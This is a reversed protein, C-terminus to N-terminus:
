RVPNAGLKIETKKKPAPIFKEQHIPITFSFTSGEGERSQVFLQGGNKEIFDKCLMLGLGSGKEYSTGLTSHAQNTFLNSLQGDTMGIGSDRVSVKLFDKERNAQVLLEGGKGTFKIANSVLNRVVLKIMEYDGFVKQGPDITLAMKIDVGKNQAQLETLNITEDILESIDFAEPIPNIGQMQNKAWNLLNDLLNTTINVKLRLDRAISKTESKNIHGDALLMLVGELSNLPSRFDHSVISILKDKIKNSEELEEKQHGIDKNLSQLTSIIKEIEKKQNVLQKNAIKKDRNANTLIVLILFCLILGFSVVIVTYTQKEILMQQDDMKASKLENDVKLFEKESEMQKLNLLALQLTKTENFLSDKYSGYMETYQLANRFDGKKKYIQSLVEAAQKIENKAQLKTGLVMGKEAFKIANKFQNKKLYVEGLCTFTASLYLKNGSELSELADELHSKAQDLKGNDCYVQAMAKLNIGVGEQDNNLVDIKYSENYYFLASDYKQQNAYVDGLNHYPFTLSENLDNLKATKIAEDLYSKAKEYNKGSLHILAINNLVYVRSELNEDNLANLCLLYQKLAEDYDGLNDYITGILNTVEAFKELSDLKQYIVASKKLSHVASPFNDTLRHGQGEIYLSEALLLSDPVKELMKQAELALVLAIYPARNLTDKSDILKKKVLTLEYSDKQFPNSDSRVSFASSM